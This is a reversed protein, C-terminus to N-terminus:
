GASLLLAEGSFGRGRSPPYPPKNGGGAEAGAGAKVPVPASQGALLAALSPSPARNVWVPSHFPPTPTMLVLFQVRVGLLIGGGVSHGGRGELVGLDGRDTRTAATDASPHQRLRCGHREM